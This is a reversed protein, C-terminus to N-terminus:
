TGYRRDMYRQRREARTVRKEWEDDAVTAVARAQPAYDPNSSAVVLPGRFSEINYWHFHTGDGNAKLGSKVWPERHETRWVGLDLITWHQFDMEPPPTTIGYFLWDGFGKCLKEYETATGTDRRFRVTFENAYDMYQHRRIRAAVTLGSAELVMLDGCRQTDEEFTGVRLLHPGVVERILPLFEYQWSFDKDYSM